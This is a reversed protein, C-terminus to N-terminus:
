PRKTCQTLKIEGYGSWPAIPDYVHLGDRTNPRGFQLDSIWQDPNINIKCDPEFATAEAKYQWTFSTLSVGADKFILTLFMGTEGHRSSLVSASYEDPEGLINIVDSIAFEEWQKTQPHFKLYVLTQDVFLADGLLGTSHDM